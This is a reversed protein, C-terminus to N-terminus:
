LESFARGNSSAGPAGSRVDYVGGSSAAAPAVVIWTAPSETVPDVPIQRLYKERALTELQDPYRGKDAYYQQIAERMQHLNQQLVKEKARQESQFYRPVALSLLLAVIALVALLEVMTFGRRM